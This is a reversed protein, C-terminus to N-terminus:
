LPTKQLWEVDGKLAEEPFGFGSREIKVPLWGLRHAGTKLAMVRFERRYDSDVPVLRTEFVGDMFFSMMNVVKEDHVGTELTFMGPVDPNGTERMRAVLVQLFKIVVEVPNYLLLSTVSDFFLFFRKRKKGNVEALLGGLEHSMTMLDSVDLLDKGTGGTKWSCADLFQLRGEKVYPEFDIGFGHKAHAMFTAPPLETTLYVVDEGKELMERMLTTCLATKGTGPLGRVLYITNERLGGDMIREFDTALGMDMVTKHPQVRWSPCAHM